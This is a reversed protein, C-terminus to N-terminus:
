LLLTAQNLHSHDASISGQDCLHVMGDLYFLTKVEELHVKEVNHNSKYERESPIDGEEDDSENVLEPVEEADESISEKFVIRTLYAAASSRAPFRSRSAPSSESDSDENMVRAMYGTAVKAQKPQGAGKKQEPSAQGKEMRMRKHFEAMKLKKHHDATAKLERWSRRQTEQDQNLPSQAEGM